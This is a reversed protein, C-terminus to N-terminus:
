PNLTKANIWGILYDMEKLGEIEGLLPILVRYYTQGNLEMRGIKCASIRPSLEIFRIIEGKNFAFVDLTDNKLNIKQSTDVEIMNTWEDFRSVVTKTKIVLSDNNLECHYYYDYPFDCCAWQYTEFETINQKEKQMNVVIAGPMKIFKWGKGKKLLIYIAHQDWEFNLRDYIFDYSSDGNIHVLHINKQLELPLNQAFLGVDKQFNLYHEYGTFFYTSSTDLQRILENMFETKESNSTIKELLSFNFQAQELGEISKDKPFSYSLQCWSGVSTILFLILINRM